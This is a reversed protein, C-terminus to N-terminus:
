VPWRGAEETLAGVPGPPEATPFTYTLGEAALIEAERRRIAAVDDAARDDYGCLHLLGHVLYLALEARPDIGAGRATTAATEASVALEGALDEGPESLRFSIVDTPWDHDLHRLNIARIAADDLLAVSISARVVGERALTRRVLGILDAPDVALHGQTDSIEVAVASVDEVDM